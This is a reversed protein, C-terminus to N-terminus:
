YQKDMFNALKQVGGGGETRVYKISPRKAWLSTGLYALAERAKRAESPRASSPRVSQRARIASARENACTTPARAAAARHAGSAAECTHTGYTTTAIRPAPFCAPAAAPSSERGGERARGFLSPALFFPSLFGASLSLQISPFLQTKPGGGAPQAHRSRSFSRHM